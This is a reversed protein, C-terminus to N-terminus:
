DNSAEIRAIKFHCGRQFQALNKAAALTSLFSPHFAHIRRLAPLLTRCRIQDPNFTQMHDNATREETAAAKTSFCLV